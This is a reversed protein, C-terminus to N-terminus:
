KKIRKREKYKTQLNDPQGSGRWTLEMKKSNAMVRAVPRNQSNGTHIRFLKQM